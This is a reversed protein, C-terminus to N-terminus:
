SVTEQFSKRFSGAARHAARIPEPLRYRTSLDLVWDVAAKQGINHGPSVWVPAVNSRSRVVTGIREDGDFCAIRDGKEPGPMSKSGILRRKACGITTWGTVVGLHSAIGVRRPHAYGHGDVVALDPTRNLKRAAKLLVPVERFALLGPVYPFKDPETVIATEVIELLPWSLICIAGIMRQKDITISADVGAILHVSEVSPAGEIRVRRALKEQMDRAEAVSKPLQCPVFTAGIGLFALDKGM